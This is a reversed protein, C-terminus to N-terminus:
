LSHCCDSHTTAASILSTFLWLLCRYCTHSQYCGDDARTRSAKGLRYAAVDDGLAAAQTFLEFAEKYDGREHAQIGSVLAAAALAHHPRPHVTLAHACQTPSLANHPRCRM